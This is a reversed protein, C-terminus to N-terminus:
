GVRQSNEYRAMMHDDDSPGGISVHTTNNQNNQNNQQVVTPQQRQRKAAEERRAQQKDLEVGATEVQQLKTIQEATQKIDLDSSVDNERTIEGAMSAQPMATATQALIEVPATNPPMVIVTDGAIERDSEIQKQREAKLQDVSIDRQDAQRELQKEMAEFYNEVEDDGMGAKKARKTFTERQEKDYKDALQEAVNEEKTNIINAKEMVSIISEPVFDRIDIDNMWEFWSAIEEGLRKLNDLPGSLSEKLWSSMSTLSDEVWMGLGTGWKELQEKKLLGMTLTEAIQGFFMGAAKLMDGSKQYEEIAEQGGRFLAYGIAAIPLAKKLMFTLAKKSFITAFAKGIWQLAWMLGLVIGRATIVFRDKLKDILSKPKDEDEVGFGDNGTLGKARSDRRAEEADRQQKKWMSLAEINGEDLTDRIQNLVEVQEDKHKGELMGAVRTMVEIVGGSGALSEFILELHEKVEPDTETEIAERLEDKAGMLVGASVEDKLDDINTDRVIEVGADIEEDAKQRVADRLTQQEAKKRDRREEMKNGAFQVGMALLPSNGVVGVLAGLGGILQDGLFDNFRALGGTNEKLLKQTALAQQLLPSEDPDTHGEVEKLVRIQANVGELLAKQDKVSAFEAEQTIDTLTKLTTLENQNLEFYDGMSKSLINFTNNLEAFQKASSRAGSGTLDSGSSRSFKRDEILKDALKRSTQSERILDVAANVEAAQEKNNDAM